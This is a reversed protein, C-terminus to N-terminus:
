REVELLLLRYFRRLKAVDETQILRQIRERLMEASDGKGYFTFLERIPVDLQKAIDSITDLPPTDIEGREVRGIYANDKNILESLRVQTLNKAERLETLRERFFRADTLDSSM